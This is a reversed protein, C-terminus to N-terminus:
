GVNYALNNRMIILAEVVPAREALFVGDLREPLAWGLGARLLQVRPNWGDPRREGSDFWPFGNHVWRKTLEAFSFLRNDYGFETGCCACISFDIPPFELGGYGCVPCIM